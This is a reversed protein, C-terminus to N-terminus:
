VHVDQGVSADVDDEARALEWALMTWNLKKRWFLGHGLGQNQGEKEATLGGTHPMRRDFVVRGFRSHVIAMSCMVCPEHTLYIEMNHCLYGNRDLRAQHRKPLSEPSKPLPRDMFYDYDQRDFADWSLHETPTADVDSETRPKEATRRVLDHCQNEWCRVGAGYCGACLNYTGNLCIDCHFYQDLDKAACLVCHIAPDEDPQEDPQTAAEQRKRGVMGIARMAAHAMANGESCGQQSSSGPPHHFYRADGAAVVVTGSGHWDRQVVVCGVAEGVSANKVTSACSRALSMHQDIDVAIENQARTLRSPHPGFPNTQKYVTKWHSRTWAVSKEYSTPAYKPVSISRIQPDSSLSTLNSSLLKALGELSIYTTPCAVM